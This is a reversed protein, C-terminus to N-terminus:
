LSSVLLFGAFSRGAGYIKANVASYKSNNLVDIGWDVLFALSGMTAGIAISLAWKWVEARAYDGESRHIAFERELDNDQLFM